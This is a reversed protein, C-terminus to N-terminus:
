WRDSTGLHSQPAVPGAASPHPPIATPPMSHQQQEWQLAAEAEALAAFAAAALPSDMSLRQRLHGAAEWLRCTATSLALACEGSGRLKFNSRAHHLMAVSARLKDMADEVVPDRPPPVGWGGFAPPANEWPRHWLGDMGLVWQEQSPPPAPHPGPWGVPCQTECLREGCGCGCLTLADMSVGSQGVSDTPCGSHSRDPSLANLPPEGQPTPTQNALPLAAPSALLIDDLDDAWSVPEEASLSCGEVSSERVGSGSAAVLSLLASAVASLMACQADEVVGGRAADAAPQPQSPPTSKKQPVASPVAKKSPQKPEGTTQRKKKTVEMWGGEDSPPTPPAARRRPRLRAVVPAPRVAEVEVGAEMGADEVAAESGSSTLHPSPVEDAKSSPSPPQSPGPSSGTSVSDTTDLMWHLRQRVSDGCPEVMSAPLEVSRALSRLCGRGPCPQPPPRRLARM